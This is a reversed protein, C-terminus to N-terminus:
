AQNLMLTRFLIERPNLAGTGDVHFFYKDKDKLFWVCSVPMWKAHKDGTDRRLVVDCILREGARLTVLHTNIFPSDVVDDSTVVCPGSVDLRYVPCEASIMVREDVVVLQGFRHALLEDSLASSNEYILVMDAAFINLKCMLNRRLKAACSPSDTNYMFEIFSHNQKTITVNNM